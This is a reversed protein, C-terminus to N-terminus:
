EGNLGGGEGGPGGMVGGIYSMYFSILKIAVLIAVIVLLIVGLTVVLQTTAHASEEEYFDAAKELIEDLNGSTEGTSIMGVFMQPFFGSALITQSISIGQELAPVMRVSQKELLSNGSAEGAMSLAAPLPVGAGYLAALSRAFRAVALKRVLPGIVPISLKVQDYFDKGAQSTLFVRIVLWVPVAIAATWIVMQFLNQLYGALTLPVNIPLVLFLLGVVLKPYLTKRKVELRVEYERELYSSLRQVIEVLLGGAEGAEVMRVQMRDFLWPYRAMGESLRGGVLLHRALESIVRRLEPNATQNPQGLMEMAQYIGMGSNLLTYLQRYFVSLDKLSVPSRLRRSLSTEKNPVPARSRESAGAHTSRIDTVWLGQQRLSAAARSDTEAEVTGTSLRGARDRATYIFTPM